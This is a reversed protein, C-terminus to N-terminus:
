FSGADLLIHTTLDAKQMYKTLMAVPLVAASGLIEDHTKDHQLRSLCVVWTQLVPDM